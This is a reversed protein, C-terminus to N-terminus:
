RFFIKIRGLSDGLLNHHEGFAEPVGRDGVLLLGEAALQFGQPINAPLFLINCVQEEVVVFSSSM